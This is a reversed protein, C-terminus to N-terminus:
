PPEKRVFVSALCTTVRGLFRKIRLRRFSRPTLREIGGDSRRVIRSCSGCRPRSARTHGTNPCQDCFLLGCGTCRFATQRGDRPCECAFREAIEYEDVRGDPHLVVRRERVHELHEAVWAPPRNAQINRRFPKPTSM